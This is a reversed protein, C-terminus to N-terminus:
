KIKKELEEVRDKLMEIYQWIEANDSPQQQRELKDIKQRMIRNDIENVQSMEAMEAERSSKYYTGYLDYPM